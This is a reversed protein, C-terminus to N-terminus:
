STSQNQIAYRKKLWLYSSNLLNKENKIRTVNRIRLGKIKNDYINDRKTKCTIYNEENGSYLSGCKEFEKVM